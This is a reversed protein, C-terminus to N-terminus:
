ATSKQLKEILATRWLSDAASADKTCGDGSNIGSGSTVEKGRKVLKDVVSQILLRAEHPKKVQKYVSCLKLAAEGLEEAKAQNEVWDGRELARLSKEYCEMMKSANGLVQCVAGYCDWVTASTPVKQVIFEFM